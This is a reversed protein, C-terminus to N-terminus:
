LAHFEGLFKVKISNYGGLIFSENLSGVKSLDSVRGIYCEKLWEKPTEEVKFHIAHPRAKNQSQARNRNKVIHFISKNRKGEV